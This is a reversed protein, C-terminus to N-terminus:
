AEQILHSFYEDIAEECDHEECWTLAETESLPVINSGGSWSSNGMSEAYKSMPGGCGHLFYSGKKTRYLDESCYGFDTSSLGNWYEALLEATETNYTKGNITKKM